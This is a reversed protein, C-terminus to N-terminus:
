IKSVFTEVCQKTEDRLSILEGICENFYGEIDKISSTIDQKTVFGDSIMKEFDNQVFGKLTDVRKSLFVIRDFIDQQSNM